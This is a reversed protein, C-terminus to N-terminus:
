HVESCSILYKIFNIVNSNFLDINDVNDLGVDMTDYSSDDLNVIIQGERELTITEIAIGDEEITAVFNKNIKYGVKEKVYEIDFIGDKWKFIVDVKGM